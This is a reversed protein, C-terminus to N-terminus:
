LRVRHLFRRLRRLCGGRLRWIGATFVGAHVLGWPQHHDPGTEFSAIVREPGIEDFSLGLLKMFASQGELNVESSPKKV